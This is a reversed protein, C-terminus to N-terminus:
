CGVPCFRSRQLNYRVKSEARRDKLHKTPKVTSIRFPKVARSHNLERTKDADHDDIGKLFLIWSSTISFFIPSYDATDMILVFYSNKMTSIFM